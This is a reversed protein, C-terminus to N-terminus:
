QESFVKAGDDSGLFFPVTKNADSYIYTVAYCVAFEPPFIKGTLDIYGNEPTKIYQWRIDKGQSSTYM